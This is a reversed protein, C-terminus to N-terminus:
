ETADTEEKILKFKTSMKTIRLDDGVKLNVNSLADTVQVYIAKNEMHVIVGIFTKKLRRSVKYKKGVYIM